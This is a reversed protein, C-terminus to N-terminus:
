AAPPDSLGVSALGAVDSVRPDGVLYSIGRHLHLRFQQALTEDDLELGDEHCRLRLLAWLVDGHDGGFTRWDMEVTSDFALKLVPPPAAEALSRCLAWRCLVNWHAIGTRRKLTILQDRATQSVRIHDVPM